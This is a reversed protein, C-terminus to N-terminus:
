FYLRVEGVLRGLLSNKTSSLSLFLVKPGSTSELLLKVRHWSIPDTANQEEFGRTNTCNYM